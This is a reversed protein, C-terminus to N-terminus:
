LDIYSKANSRMPSIKTNVIIPTLSIVEPDTTVLQPNSLQKARLCGKDTLWTGGKKGQRRNVLELKKLDGLVRQIENEDTLSRSTDPLSSLIGKVRIRHDSNIAGINLLLTLLVQQNSSLIDAQQQEDKTLDDIADLVWDMVRFDAYVVGSNLKTKGGNTITFAVFNHLCKELLLHFGQDRNCSVQHNSAYVWFLLAKGAAVTNTFGTTSQIFDSNMNNVEAKSIVEVPNDDTNISPLGYNNVIETSLNILEDCFFDVVNSYVCNYADKLSKPETSLAKQCDSTREQVYDRHFITPDNLQDPTVPNQDSYPQQLKLWATQLEKVQSTQVALGEVLKTKSSKSVPSKKSSSLVLFRSPYEIKHDVVALQETIRKVLLARSLRLDKGHLYKSSKHWRSLV